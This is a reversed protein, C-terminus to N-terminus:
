LGLDAKVSKWSVSGRERLAKRANRLDIRDELSRIHAEAERPTRPPRHSRRRDRPRSAAATGYRARPERVESARGTWGASTEQLPIVRSEISQGADRIAVHLDFTAQLVLWREPTTGFFRALRLATDASVGRRGRLIESVRTVPVDIAKALTQASLRLPRMFEEELVEGPHLLAKRGIMWTNYRNVNCTVVALRRKGPVRSQAARSPCTRSPPSAGCPPYDKGDFKGKWVHHV